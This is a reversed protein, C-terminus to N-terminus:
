QGRIEEKGRAEAIGTLFVEIEDRLKEDCGHRLYSHLVPRVKDPQNLERILAFGERFYDDAVPGPDPYELPGFLWDSQLRAEAPTREKPDDEDPHM